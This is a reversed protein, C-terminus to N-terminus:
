QTHTHACVHKALAKERRNTPRTTTQVCKQWSGTVGAEWAAALQGRAPGPGRGRLWRLGPTLSNLSPAPSPPGSTVRGGERQTHTHTHTHTHSLSLSISLSLSLSLSLSNTHTEKETDSHPKETIKLLCLIQGQISSFSSPTLGKTISNNQWHHLHHHHDHIYGHGNWTYFTFLLSCNTITIHIVHILVTCYTNSFSSWTM